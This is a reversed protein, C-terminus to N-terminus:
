YARPRRGAPDRRLQFRGRGVRAVLWAAALAWVVGLVTLVAMPYDLPLVTPNNAKRGFAGLAPFAVAIVIASALVGARIPARAPGRVLRVLVLGVVCTAPVVLADHVAHGGAVWAAVGLAASLGDKAGILGRVGLAILCWGAVFAIWFGAHRRTTSL